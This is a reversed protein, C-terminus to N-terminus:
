ENYFKKNFIINKIWIKDQNSFILFWTCLFYMCLGTIMFIILIINSNNQFAITAYYIISFLPFIFLAIFIRQNFIDHISWKLERRIYWFNMCLALVRGFSWSIAAGILGIKSILLFGILIIFPFRIIQQKTTIDPRGIGQFLTFILTNM